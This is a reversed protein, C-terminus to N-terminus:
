ITCLAEFASKCQPILQEILALDANNEQYRAYLTKYIGNQGVSKTQVLSHQTLSKVLWNPLVAIGMDAAVMQLIVHSNAVQKINKPKQAYQNLFLKFIDLTEPAVPYSLLTQQSFHEASIYNNNTVKNQQGLVAVMEFKGLAKYTYHAGEEREDTFLIDVNQRTSKPKDEPLFIQEVFEIKVDSHQQSFQKTLPLLWQFCAHCAIALVLHKEKIEHRKLQSKAYEIDPLIKYALALLVQGCPTFEVPSTNRVFLTNNLRKELEKLQHSLASQSTFLLDATKRVNGTEALTKLTKLHKIEFM